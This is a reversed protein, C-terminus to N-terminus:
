RSNKLAGIFSQADAEGVKGLGKKSKIIAWQDSLHTAVIWFDNSEFLRCPIQITDLTVANNVYKNHEGYPAILHNTRLDIAASNRYIDESNPKVDASNYVARLMAAKLIATLKV